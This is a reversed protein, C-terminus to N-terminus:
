KRTRIEEQYLQVGDSTGVALDMLGYGVLDGAAISIGGSIGPILKPQLEAGAESAADVGYTAEDTIFLLRVHGRDEGGAFARVTNGGPVDVYDITSIDLVGNRNRVVGLRQEDGVAVIMVLDNLGDHDVDVLKPTSAPILRGPTNSLLTIPPDQTWADSKTPLIVRWLNINAGVLDTTIALADENHDGDVDGVVLQVSLEKDEFRFPVFQAPLVVSPLPIGFRGSTNPVLWLRNECEGECYISAVLLSPRSSDLLTGAALTLPVGDIMEGPTASPAELGMPAIPRRGASGIFVSLQQGPSDAPTAIVGIEDMADFGEYKATEVQDITTFNGIEIPTEPPQAVRGFAISLTDSAPDDSDHSTTLADFVIDKIGDGDFDGTNLHNVPGGTLIASQNLGNLGTGRWVDLDSAIDSGAIVDLLRDGNIDAVKAISWQRAYPAEFVCGAIQVQHQVADITVSRTLQLGKRTVWDTVGDGNLDAVALPFGSDIELSLYCDDSKVVSVPWAEGMTTDPNSPDAVFTGDGRGFAVHPKSSTDAILLDVHPDDTNVLAPIPTAGIANAGSLSAVIRPSHTTILGGNEDCPEFLYVQNSGRYAFVAEECPSNADVLDAAVPTGVFESVSNPLTGLQGVTAADAIIGPGTDDGSMFLLVVENLDAKKVQGLRMVRYSWGQPMVQIPYPIPLPTRDSTVEAAGIGYASSFVVQQSQRAQGNTPELAMVIPSSIPIRPDIVDQQRGNDDFFLIRPYAQWLGNVSGLALLDQRGDGDFDGLELSQAPIPLFDGWKAYAAREASVHHCVGDLGCRADEPCQANGTLSCDYHCGTDDNLTPPRCTKGPEAYTDCDEDAEVVANGCVGGHVNPLEGCAVVIPAVGM